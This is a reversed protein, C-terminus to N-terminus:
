WIRENEPLESTDWTSQTSRGFELTERKRSVFLQERNKKQLQEQKQTQFKWEESCKQAITQLLPLDQPYPTLSCFFLLMIQWFLAYGQLLETFLSAQVCFLEIFSYYLRLCNWLVKEPPLESLIVESMCRGWSIKPHPDSLETFFITKWITIGNKPVSSIRFGMETTYELQKQLFVWRSFWHETDKEELSINCFTRCILCCLLCQSVM